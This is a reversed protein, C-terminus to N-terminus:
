EPTLNTVKGRIRETEGAETVPMRSLLVDQLSMSMKLMFMNRSDCVEDGRSLLVWM